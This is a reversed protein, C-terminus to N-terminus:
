GGIRLCRRWDISKRACIGRIASFHVCVQRSTPSSQRDQAPSQLVQNLLAFFNLQMTVLRRGLQVLQRRVDLFSYNPDLCAQRATQIQYTTVNEYRPDASINENLKCPGFRRRLQIKQLQLLQQGRTDTMNVVQDVVNSCSKRSSRNVWLGVASMWRVRCRYGVSIEVHSCAGGLRM